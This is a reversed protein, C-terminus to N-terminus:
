TLIALAHSYKSINSPVKSLRNCLSSGITEVKEVHEINRGNVEIEIESWSIRKEEDRHLWGENDDYYIGFCPVPDNPLYFHYYTRKTFISLQRLLTVPYENFHENLYALVPIRSHLPDEQNLAFPLDECFVERRAVAQGPWEVRYKYCYSNKGHKKRFSSGRQDLDGLETDFYHQTRQFHRVAGPLGYQDILMNCLESFDRESALIKFEVEFNQSYKM